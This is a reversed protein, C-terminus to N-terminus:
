RIAIKLFGSSIDAFYKASWQALRRNVYSEDGPEIPDDHSLNKEFFEGAILAADETDQTVKLSEEKFWDVFYSRDLGNHLNYLWKRLSDHAAAVSVQRDPSLDSYDIKLDSDNCIADHISLPHIVVKKGSRVYRAGIINYCQVSEDRDLVQLAGDYYAPETDVYHIDVNNVCAQEEGTPDAEQLQRILEKTKM